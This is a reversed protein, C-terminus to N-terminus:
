NDSATTPGVASISKVELNVEGDFEEAWLEFRQISALNHASPCVCDDDACEVSHQGTPPNWKDSFDTFPITITTFQNDSSSALTFNAKFCGRSFPISGGGACAYSAIKTGSAFAVSFGKYTPTKSRLELLLHGGAAGSADAFKGDAVAKIFGPSAHVIGVAPRPNITVIGSLTGSESNQSWNGYSQSGMVSDELSYWSFNTSGAFTVLPIQSSSATTLAALIAGSLLLMQSTMSRQDNKGM